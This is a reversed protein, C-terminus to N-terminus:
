STLVEELVTELPTLELGLAAVAPGPDATSGEVLMALQDRTVPPNPLFSTLTAGFRVLALPVNILPKRISLAGMVLLLLERLSYDRPGTLAFTEGSAAPSSLASGFAAAVDAVFVPRLRYSGDGVVPVVPAATALGKLTGGFFEDGKGFILSPRLITYEVVSEKVALEAAAKSRQYASRSDASAGLASMQILRQVGTHKMAALVNLTGEVHVREFTDQGRERIIGVLHVVADAGAFAEDLGEGTTVDGLLNQTGGHKPHNGRTLTVVEHGSSLLHTVVHGGVFGSAGTVVVKM